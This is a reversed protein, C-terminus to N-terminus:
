ITTKRVATKQKTNRTVWSVWFGRNRPQNDPSNKCNLHHRTIFVNSLPQTWIVKSSKAQKTFPREFNRLRPAYHLMYQHYVNIQMVRFSHNDNFTNFNKMPHSVLEQGQNKFKEFWHLPLFKWSFSEPIDTKKVLYMQEAFYNSHLELILLLAVIGFNKRELTCHYNAFTKEKKM